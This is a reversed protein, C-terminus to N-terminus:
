GGNPVSERRRFTDFTITGTFPDVDGENLHFIFEDVSDLGDNGSADFYYTAVSGDAPVDVRSTDNIQSGDSTLIQGHVPLAKSADGSVGIDIQLVPTDTLDLPTDFGLGDPKVSMGPYRGDGGYNEVEAVFQGNVVEQSNIGDGYVSIPEGSGVVGPNEFGTILNEDGGGGGGGGGVFPNVIANVASMGLPKDYAETVLENSYDGIGAVDSGAVTMEDEGAYIANNKYDSLTGPAQAGAGQIWADQDPALGEEAVMRRVVSVHSAETAHIQLAPTLADSGVLAPAGGQYARVGTDEFAQALLLFTPYDDFPGPDFMGGATFDFSPLNEDENLGLQDELFRVHALEHDRIETFKAEANGPFSLSSDSSLAQKYYQWELYELTLAFTLVDEPTMEQAHAERSFLLTGPVAALALGLGVHGARRFADRRSPSASSSSEGPSHSADADTTTPM